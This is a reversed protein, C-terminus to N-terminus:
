RDLACGPVAVCLRDLRRQVGTVAATLSRLETVLERRQEELAALRAEALAIRQASDPHSGINEHARMDASLQAVDAGSRTVTAIITGAGLVVALLWPALSPWNIRTTM